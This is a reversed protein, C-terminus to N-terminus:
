KQFFWLNSSYLEFGLTEWFQLGKPNTALVDLSIQAGAPFVTNTLITFAQRGLGRGRAERVIFFQRLYVEPITPDYYDTGIQFVSYGVPESREEFVITQWDESLWKEMGASLEAVTMPKRSGEDDALQRNMQALLPADAVTAPRAILDM